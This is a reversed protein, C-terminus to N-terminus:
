LSLVLDRARSRLRLAWKRTLDKYTYARLAARSPVHGHMVEHTFGRSRAKWRPLTTRTSWPLHEEARGLHMLQPHLADAAHAAMFAANATDAAYELIAVPQNERVAVGLKVAHYVTEFVAEELGIDKWDGKHQNKWLEHLMARSFVAVEEEGRKSM